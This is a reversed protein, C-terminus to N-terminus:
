LKTSRQGDSTRRGFIEGGRRLDAALEDLEGRTQAAQQKLKSRLDTILTTFEAHRQKAQETIQEGTQRAMERVDARIGHLLKQRNEHSQDFDQRLRLFTESFVAM